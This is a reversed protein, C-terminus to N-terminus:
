FLYRKETNADDCQATTRATAASSYTYAGLAGGAQRAISIRRTASGSVSSYANPQTTGRARLAPSDRAYARILELDRKLDGRQSCDQTKLLRLKHARATDRGRSVYM